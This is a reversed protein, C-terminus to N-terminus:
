MWGIVFIDGDKEQAKIPITRRQLAAVGSPSPPSLLMTSTDPRIDLALFTAPVSRRAAPKQMGVGLVMFGLVLAQRSGRRKRAARSGAVAEATRFAVSPTGKRKIQM